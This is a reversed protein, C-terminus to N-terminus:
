KALVMKKTKVVNGVELKCLYVGASVGVGADNTADWTVAQFVAPQFADVLAKVEQGLTNYNTLKVQDAIKWSM